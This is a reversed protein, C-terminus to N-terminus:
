PLPTQLVAQTTFGFLTNNGYALIGVDPYGWPLVPTSVVGAGDIKRLWGQGSMYLNDNADVTLSSYGSFALGAVGPAGDHGGGKNLTGAFVSAKGARDVKFVVQHVYDDFYLNGKSDFVMSAPRMDEWGYDTYGLSLALAEFSVFSTFTGGPARRHIGNLGWGQWVVYGDKDVGLVFQTATMGPVSPLVGDTSVVGDKSIKRLNYATSGPAQDALYVTGDQGCAIAVTALFTASARPGDASGAIGAMGAYISYSGDQTLRRLVKNTRDLFYVNGAPDSCMGTSGVYGLRAAAGVGDKPGINGPMFPTASLVRAASLSSIRHKGDEHVLITGSSDQLLARLSTWGPAVGAADTVARGLVTTVDGDPTMRRVADRDALLVSGDLGLAMGSIGRFSAATGKGDNGTRSSSGAFPAAVGQQWRYVRSGALDQLYVTGSADVILNNAQIQRGNADQVKESTVRGGPTVRRIFPQMLDALLVDGNIDMAISGPEGLQAQTGQGDASVAQASSWDCVAGRQGAVTSVVGAPTIKRLLANCREIVYLNDQRDIALVFAGGWMHFTASAAAGDDAGPKGPTGAYLSVTGAPTVKHIVQLVADAIYYNGAADQVLGAVNQIKEQVGALLVPLCRVALTNVDANGVTAAGKAISCGLGESSSEIKGEYSAGAALKGAFHFAGNATVILKEAGNALVVRTGPVLGSVTGGVLYRPAEATPVTPVTPAVPTGAGGSGGGCASLGALLAVGYGTRRFLMQLKGDRNIMKAKMTFPRYAGVTILYCELIFLM